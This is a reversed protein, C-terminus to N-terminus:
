EDGSYEVEEGFVKLAERVASYSFGKRVLAAFVKDREGAALRRAYKREILTHLQDAQDFVTNELAAKIDSSRLGKQLLKAYAERKSIGRAACEEAYRAALAKDDLLGLEKLRAIARASAEDGFRAAKLKEYLRRETYTYRDLLWLARSKARVYESESRYEKIRHDELTDGEHICKETVIDLDLLISEGGDFEIRAAHGKERRISKVTM